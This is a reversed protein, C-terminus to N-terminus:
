SKRDNITKLSNLKISNLVRLFIQKDSDKKGAYQPGIGVGIDSNSKKSIDASYYLGDSDQDCIWYYDEGKLYETVKDGTEANGCAGGRRKINTHTSLVAQVADFLKKSICPPHSGPFLEGNFIFAGYYMPNTLIKHVTSLSLKKGSKSTLGASHILDRLTNLSYNGTAYLEFMKRVLLFREPDKVIKHTALDNLYGTPAQGTQEGRRVKQRHGRKVNESLNDVYYKSQGFAINLMFKGQPTADFWFTPFKLDRLKLTDVLHIVRGGDVSNRALRDPHWALIGSAVGKEILAVMNNFIPRGPEKATQSEIFEQVIQFGERAALERLEHM